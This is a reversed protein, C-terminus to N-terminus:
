NNKKITENMKQCALGLLNGYYNLESKKAKDPLKQLFAMYSVKDGDNFSLIMTKPNHGKNGAFGGIAGVGGFMATGIVAKGVSFQNGSTIQSTLGSSIEVIDKHPIIKKFGNSTIIVESSTTLVNSETGQPVNECQIVTTDVIIDGSDNNLKPLPKSTLVAYIIAGIFIFLMWGM